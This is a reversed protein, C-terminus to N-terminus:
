HDLFAIRRSTAWCLGCTSCAETKGLQAPCIIADAPKHASESISATTYSLAPGDSFRVAFRPWFSRVLIALAHAIPDLEPDIRATFGFCHLAPYAILFEHWLWVYDTSYFDGLTHLRVAFGRPHLISLAAMDSALRLEFELGPRYRYAFPMNNGYCSQWHRCTSPCTAREELTLTYVPFGRWPGKLIERGIKPSNIGSKLVSHGDDAGRVSKPFLSRAEVVAPHSLALRTACIGHGPGSPSTSKSKATDRFRLARRITAMSCKLDRMVRRQDGYKKIRARIAPYDFTRGRM